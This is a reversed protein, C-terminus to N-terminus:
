DVGLLCCYLVFVPLLLCWTIISFIISWLATKGYIKANKDDNFLWTLLGVIPFLSSIALIWPKLESKVPEQESNCPVEINLNVQTTASEPETVPILNAGCNPCKETYWDIYVKCEPCNM